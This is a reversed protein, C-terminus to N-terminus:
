PNRNQKLADDELQRDMLNKYWENDQFYIMHGFRIIRLLKGGNPFGDDDSNCTTLKTRGDMFHFLEYIHHTDDKPKKRKSWPKEMAWPKEKDIKNMWEDKFEEYTKFGPIDHTLLDTETKLLYNFKPCVTSEFDLIDTKIRFIKAIEDNNGNTEKFNSVEDNTLVVEDDGRVWYMWLAKKTYWDM